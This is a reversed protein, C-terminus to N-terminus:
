TEDMRKQLDTQRKLAKAALQMFSQEVNMNEKASTEMYGMAGNDECFAELENFSVARGEDEIDLKNGIVMFPFSEPQSVM